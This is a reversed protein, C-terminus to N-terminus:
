AWCDFIDPADRRKLMFWQTTSAHRSRISVVHGFLAEWWPSIIELAREHRMDHNCWKFAMLAEPLAVRWSEAAAGAMFQRIEPITYSGYLRGQNSGVSFNGHPPDFVILNFSAEEFPLKTSDGVIDPRVELRHDVYVADPHQKVMWINRGGATMDLIRM